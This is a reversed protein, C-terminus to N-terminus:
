LCKNWWLTNASESWLKRKQKNGYSSNDFLENCHCSLRTLPESFETAIPALNNKTAIFQTEM